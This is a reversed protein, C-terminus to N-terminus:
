SWKGKTFIGGAESMTATGLDASDADNRLTKTTNTQTVKNRALMCAFTIMDKLSAVAAPPAALQGFTDTVLVDLMEANINAATLISLTGSGPLRADLDVLVDNISGATPVGPMAADLAANVQTLVNANSIDNLNGIDAALDAAPTGLKPQMDATDVEIVTISSTNDDETITVGGTNTVKWSGRQNVTGSSSAAYIIQGIGSISFLDTGQNNFNRIETGNHYDPMSLNQSVGASTGFDIIPTAAGSIASHGDNIVYNGAAGLTLTGSFGCGTMHFPDITATGVVGDHFDIEGTAALWVGSVKAGFMHADSFDQGGGVATWNHGQWTEGAHNTAFTVSSGVSVIVKRLNRAALLTNVAAETSVPNGPVGDTSTTGTNSATSDFYVADIASVASQSFAVFIQDIALLATTLGSAKYFRVRVTGANAGTGVMDVFMDFSHVSNSTSGAGQINGIQVWATAAWDYGYVDLDDNGGTVYGTAQVSSPVGSGITFEYFLDMVGTDDTHEHRTGDLAETATYTNASQTGTTLTYSAAPRHIASGVNAIGSLQSQTAPFTDGTLGTADYQSELNNAAINDLSIAAVNVSGDVVEYVSDSSPNTTWNPVINCTDDALTNNIILRAQGAGTGGTIKIINGNMVNDAFAAASTLVITTATGSQATGSALATLGTGSGTTWAGDGRDRIAQLSDTTNVFDDWDATASSSVLQAIISDDTVDAGAVAAAVLHDLGLAVLADNVESQVETDWAANWPMATLGTGTAAQADTVVKIADLIVDLRGADIWDSLVAIQAATAPNHTGTALTGIIRSLITNIDAGNDNATQATGNVEMQNVHFGTPDAQSQTEWENVIAAATPPTGTYASDTGRMFRNEISFSAIWANITGGDVTTGEVRVLYDSGTSYDAHVSSDITILHNGTVGDYNIAVTAGDTVIQTTGGDKHVMIDADVLDTITVSAQPDDSSFTNFPIYVTADEPFDGLYQM